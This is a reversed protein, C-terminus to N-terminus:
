PRPAAATEVPTKNENEVQPEVSEQPAAAQASRAVVPALGVGGVFWGEEEAKVYMGLTGLRDHILSFDPLNKGDLRQQRKGDAENTVLFENLFKGVLSESEPMKGQRVLEYSVKLQEAARAFGEASSENSGIAQLAQRVRQLDKENALSPADSTRAIIERIFDAHSAVLFHGRVVALAANALFPNVEDEEEEAYNEDIGLDFESGTDLELGPTEEAEDLIEWIEHGGDVEIRRVHPDTSLAKAISKKMADPNTLQIAVLFRESNTELPMQFDTIATVRTGFHAMIDKDLNIQPGNPDLEISEKLDEWFGEDGAVEDVLTGIFQYSEQIGWTACFYSCINAPVWPEVTLDEVEHFNLMRAALRFRHKGAGPVPPAYLFARQLIEYPGEMMNVFGGAGEVADFGQKRLAKIYDTRRRRKGGAADRALEAYGLPEVFWRVHPALGNAEKECRQMCAQFARVRDLGPQPNTGQLRTMVDRAAKPHDAAVFTDQIMFLVAEFTAKGGQTVPVTYITVPTDGWTERRVTAQRKTMSSEVRAMLQTVAEEKGTVDALAIISHRQAPDDTGAFAVCVEGACVSRLDDWTIGVRVGTLGFRENLQLELDKSFAELAPDAFLKGVESQSWADMLQTINPIAVYGKTSAPLLSESPPTSWSTAAGLSGVVLVAAALKRM